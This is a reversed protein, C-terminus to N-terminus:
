SARTAGGDLVLSQGTLYAALPSVLFAAYSGMEKPEALRGVPILGRIKEETLGLEKIRDTATYGPLLANVTIGFPAMETAVTKVLGSLGARLSNSITLGPLPERASLSTVLLVRGFKQAKMLPLAVHLSEVVSMWLNQFSEAWQSESLTLFAGASPGGSNLVLIDPSGLISVMQHIAAEGQGRKTFDATFYGQAGVQEAALKLRKEDRSCLVVEAGEQVLTEAIAKGIGASSGTVLARKGKLQLDM